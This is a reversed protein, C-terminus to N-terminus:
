DKEDEFGKYEIQINTSIVTTWHGKKKYIDFRPYPNDTMIINIVGSGNDVCYSFEKTWIRKIDSM